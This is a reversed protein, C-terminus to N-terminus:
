PNTVVEESDTGGSHDALHPGLYFDGAERGLEIRLLSNWFRAVDFAIAPKNGVGQM